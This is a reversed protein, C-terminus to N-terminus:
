TLSTRLFSAKGCVCSMAEQNNEQKYKKLKSEDIKALMTDRERERECVCVCVCVCVGVGVCVCVCVYVCMCVCYYEFKLFLVKELNVLIPIGYLFSRQKNQTEFTFICIIFFLQWNDIPEFFVSNLVM